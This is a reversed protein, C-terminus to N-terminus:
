FLEEVQEWRLNELSDIVLDARSFDNDRTHETPIALCKMGAEAAAIVGKEADELVLCNPPDVRLLEACKLFPEPHPKHNEVDEYAIRHQFYTKLNLSELVLEVTVRRSSSAVAILVRQKCDDLFAHVGPMPKLLTPLLSSFIEAKRNLLKAPDLDLRHESVFDPTTKGLRIWHHNYLEESLTFNNEAFTQIWSRSHIGETDALLGDMDFIVAEIM